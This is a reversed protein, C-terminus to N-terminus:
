ATCNYYKLAATKGKLHKKRTTQCFQSLNFPSGIVYSFKNELQCVMEKWGLTSIKLRSIIPLLQKPIFGSKDTRIIRGTFDILQIYELLNFNISLDNSNHKGHEQFPMLDNPQNQKVDSLAKIREYVSTFESEEPSIAQKARIPNLDVYVMAALLGGEDLLAQSKFRGEWFRGNCNDERNSRRAINENLCRMFWSINQLRERWQSVKKDMAEKTLMEKAKACDQPFLISWRKMIESSTWKEASDTDVFLVLHYHNCMIAYACIRISFINALYKIRKILWIKRHNYDQGTQQDLGSLFARRVCRTICHYFPTTALNIKTSRPTTMM